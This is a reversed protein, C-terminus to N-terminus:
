IELRLSLMDNVVQKTGWTTLLIAQEHYELKILLVYLGTRGVALSSSSCLSVCSASLKLEILGVMVPFILLNMCFYLSGTSFGHLHYSHCCVALRTCKRLIYEPCSNHVNTPEVNNTEWKRGHRTKM